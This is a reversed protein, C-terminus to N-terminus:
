PGPRVYASLGGEGAFWLHAPTVFADHLGAVLDAEPHYWEGQRPNYQTVGDKTVIWLSEEDFALATIAFSTLQGEERGIETWERTARDFQFLGDQTGCWVEEPGLALCTINVLPVGARDDHIWWKPIQKEYQWLADVCLFWVSTLDIAVSHVLQKGPVAHELTTPRFAGPFKIWQEPDQFRWARDPGVVWISALAQDELLRPFDGTAWLDEVIYKHWDTRQPTCSSLGGAGAVWLLNDHLLLSTVNDSVLGGDTTETTLAQWRGTKGDYYGVGAPTACWVEEGLTVMARVAPSPLGDAVSFRDWTETARDLRFVGQDSLGFWTATPTTAVCTVHNGPLVDTEPFATWAQELFDYRRIGDSATAVWLEEPTVGLATVYWPTEPVPQWGEQATDM